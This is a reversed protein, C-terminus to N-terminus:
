NPGHTAEIAGSRPASIAALTQLVGNRTRASATHRALDNMSLVGVPRGAEDVVPLRRVQKDSMIQEARDISDDPRCSFVHRAMARSVPVDGLCQGSSYAAMCIDRDTIMGVVAGDDGVVPVAGCDNDWMLGAAVTLTDTPRCTVAPQNMLQEVHTM